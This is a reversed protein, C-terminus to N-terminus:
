GREMHSLFSASASAYEFINKTRSARGVFFHDPLNHAWWPTLTGASFFRTFNFIKQNENPQLPNTVPPHLWRSTPPDLWGFGGVGEWAWFM